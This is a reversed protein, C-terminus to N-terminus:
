PDAVLDKLDQLEVEVGALRTFLSRAAEARANAARGADPCSHRAITIWCSVTMGRTM